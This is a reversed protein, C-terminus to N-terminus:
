GKDITCKDERTFWFCVAGFLCWTEVSLKPEEVSLQKLRHIGQMRQITPSSVHGLLYLLLLLSLCKQNWKMKAQAECEGRVQILQSGRGSCVDDIAEPNATKSITDPLLFDRDHSLYLFLHHLGYKPGSHTNKYNHIYHIQHSNNSNWVTICSGSLYFIKFSPCQRWVKPASFTISSFFYLFIYTKLHQQSITLVKFHTQTFCDMLKM